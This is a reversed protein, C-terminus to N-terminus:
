FYLSFSFSHVESYCDENLSANFCSVIGLPNKKGFVSSFISFYLYLADLEPHKVEYSKPDSKEANKLKCLM